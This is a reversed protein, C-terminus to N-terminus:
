VVARMPMKLMRLSCSVAELLPLTLLCVPLLSARLAYYGACPLLGDAQMLHPLRCAGHSLLYWCMRENTDGPLLSLLCQSGEWVAAAFHPRWAM